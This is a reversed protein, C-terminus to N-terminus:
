IGDGEAIERLFTRTTQVEKEEAPSLARFPTWRVEVGDYTANASARASELDPFSQVVVSTWDPECHMLFVVDEVLGQAVVVRSVTELVVPVGGAMTSFRRSRDAPADLFAFELVRSADLLFPPEDM